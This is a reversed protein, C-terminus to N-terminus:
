VATAVEVSAPLCSCSWTDTSQRDATRCYENSRVYDYKRGVGEAALARGQSVKPPCKNEGVSWHYRRDRAGGCTQQVWHSASPQRQDKRGPPALEPCNRGDFYSGGHQRTLNGSYSYGCSCNSPREQCLVATARRGIPRHRM